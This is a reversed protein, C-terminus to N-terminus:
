IPKDPGAKTKRRIFHDTALSKSDPRIQHAKGDYRKSPRTTLRLTIRGGDRPYIVRILQKYLKMM